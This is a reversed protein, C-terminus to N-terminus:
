RLALPMRVPSRREANNITLGSVTTRQCRDEISEDHKAVITTLNDVEIDGHMRSRM